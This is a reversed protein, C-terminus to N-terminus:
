TDLTKVLTKNLENTNSYTHNIWQGSESQAEIKLGRPSWTGGRQICQQDKHRDSGDQTMKDAYVCTHNLLNIFLM